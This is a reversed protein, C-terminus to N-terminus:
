WNPTCLTVAGATELDSLLQRVSRGLVPHRLEPALEALPALVFRREHLRPHPLILGPTELCLAGYLLLDIDLTRAGWRENRRRGFRAELELCCALLAQPALTTEVQLVANLYNPQGTPGGVPETEYLGSAATVEIGETAALGRRAGRLQGLCDGLNAGLGLYATVSQLDSGREM